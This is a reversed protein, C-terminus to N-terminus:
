IRGRDTTLSDCKIMKKSFPLFIYFFFFSRFINNFIYEIYKIVVSSAASSISANILLNNLRM